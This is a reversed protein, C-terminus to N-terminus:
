LIKDKDFNQMIEDEKNILPDYWDVKDIAKNLWNQLEDTLANKKIANEQVANIYDRLFRARQWRKAQKYLNKFYSLEKEIRKQQKRIIREKEDKIKEEEAQKSRIEKWYNVIVELRALIVAMKDEILMKGDTWMGSMGFGYISFYRLGTSEYKPYGWNQDSIIKKSKEILKIEYKEDNISISGDYSIGIKHGRAKILKIFTDMFCLARGINERSVRITFAGESRVMENNNYENYSHRLLQKEASIVLDDPDTLKKPVKLLLSKDEKILDVVSKVHFTVGEPNSLDKNKPYINIENDGKFEQPLEIIHVVKGFQIKSWYGHPPIPINFDRCIKRLCVFSIELRKSISTLTEKWVLDYLEQRTIIYTEM